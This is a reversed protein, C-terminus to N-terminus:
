PKIPKSVANPDPRSATSNTKSKPLAPTAPTAPTNPKKDFKRIYLRSFAGGSIRDTIRAMFTNQTLRTTLIETFSFRTSRYTVKLQRIEQLQNFKSALNIPIGLNQARLVLTESMFLSFRRSSYNRPIGQLRTASGPIYQSLTQVQFNTTTTTTTLRDDVKAKNDVKVVNEVKAKNDVKVTNDVTAVNEAKVTNNLQARNDGGTNVVTAKPRPTFKFGVVSSGYAGARIFKIIRILTVSTTVRTTITQRFTKAGFGNVLVNARSFIGNQGFLSGMSMRNGSQDLIFINLLTSRYYKPSIGKFQAKYSFQHCQTSFSQTILSRQGEFVTGLNLYTSDVPQIEQQPIIDPQNPPGVNVVTAPNQSGPAPPELAPPPIELAPAPPPIELAPAPPPIELAPAPTPNQSGPAPAELAPPPPVIELPITQQINVAVTNDVQPPNVTGVNIVTPNVQPPNLTGLTIAANGNPPPNVIGITDDINLTIEPVPPPQIAQPNVPQIQNQGLIPQSKEDIGTINLTSKKNGAINQVNIVTPSDGLTLDVSTFDSGQTVIAPTQPSRRELNNPSDSEPPGRGGLHLNFFKLNQPLYSSGHNEFNERAQQNTSYPVQAHENFKKTTYFLAIALSLCIWKLIPKARNRSLVLDLLINPRSNM